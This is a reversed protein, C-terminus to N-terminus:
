GVVAPLAAAAGILLWPGLAIPQHLRGGRLLRLLGALAAAAFGATLVALAAVPSGFGACGAIVACLKVDGYGTGSFMAVVYMLVFAGGAVAAAQWWSAWGRGGAAAVGLATFVGVAAAALLPDPLRHERADVVAPAVGVVLLVWWAGAVQPGGAWGAAWGGAVGCCVLVAAIRSPGGPWPRRSFRRIGAWVLPGALLGAAAGVAASM